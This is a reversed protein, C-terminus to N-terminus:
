LINKKKKNYELIKLNKNNNLILNLKKQMSKFVHLKIKTKNIDKNNSNNFILINTQSVNAESYKSKGLFSNNAQMLNNSLIYDFQFSSLLFVKIIFIFKRFSYIEM